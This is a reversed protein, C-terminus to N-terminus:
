RETGAGYAYCIFQLTGTMYGPDTNYKDVKSKLKLTQQGTWDGYKYTIVGGTGADDDKQATYNMEIGYKLWESTYYMYFDKGKSGDSPLPNSNPDDNEWVGTAIQGGASWEVQMMWQGPKDNDPYLQAYLTCDDRAKPTGTPTYVPLPSTTTDPIITQAPEGLIPTALLLFIPLLPLVYHYHMRKSKRQRLSPSFSFMEVHSCYALCSLQPELVSISFSIVLLIGKKQGRVKRFVKWAAVALIVADKQVSRVFFKVEQFVFPSFYAYHNM